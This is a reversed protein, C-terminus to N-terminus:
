IIKGFEEFKFRYARPLLEKSPDKYGTAIIMPVVKHDEIQLFEKLRAEDYGEMPHTELGYARATIMITMGFLATDRVAKRFARQPDQWSAMIQNKLSEKAEPKIYGLEEWSQLVRDVHEFGARTNAILVINASADEVKQQNYCIERLRKKKEKDKVVIVEWPQLNYGSPATASIELIEKILEDPVDKTPDFFTISRRETILRLCEKM